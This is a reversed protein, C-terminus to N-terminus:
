FPGRRVSECKDYPRRPRMGLAAHFVRRAEIARGAELFSGAPDSARSHSDNTNGNAKANANLHRWRKNKALENIKRAKKLDVRM